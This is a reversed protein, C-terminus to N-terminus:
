LIRQLANKDVSKITIFEIVSTNVIAKLMHERNFRQNLLITLSGLM